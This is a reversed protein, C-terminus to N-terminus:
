KASKSLNPKIAKYVEDAGTAVTEINASFEALDMGKLNLEITVLTDGQENIGIKIGDIDNNLRLLKHMVEATPKLNEQKALIVILVALDSSATAVLVDFHAFAKGEFPIKYLNEDVKSYPSTYKAFLQALTPSTKKQALVISPQSFSCLLIALTVLTLILKSHKM